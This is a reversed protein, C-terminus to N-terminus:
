TNDCLEEFKKCDNKCALTNNDFNENSHDNSLNELKCKNDTWTKQNVDTENCNNDENNNCKDAFVSPVSFIGITTLSGAAVIVFIAMDSAKSRFEM